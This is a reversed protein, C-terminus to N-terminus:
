RGKGMDIIAFAVAYVMVLEGVALGVQVVVGVLHQLVHALGIRVFYFVGLGLDAGEMDAREGAGLLM